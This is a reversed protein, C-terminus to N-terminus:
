DNWQGNPGKINGGCIKDKQKRETIENVLLLNQYILTISKSQRKSLGWELM